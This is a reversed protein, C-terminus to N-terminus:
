SERIKNFAKGLCNIIDSAIISEYCSEGAAIDGALGHLFVGLVATNEPSMGQALLSLLIGTLVDGSGATAMGPNGTSNFFVKGDSTTISTFAGKLITICSHERSFELQRTLRAFGNGTKGALREFEKPHPTLITGAPLLTLWEKNLSLINLADADIILPKKCENLLKHFTKQTENATGLGPGVGVASFLDTNGIDSIYESSPDQKVMTEPVVCHIASTGCSPVHCTLLGIGSRLAAGAGLLTAGLKGSSGSVLLGHGFHGKHDFKGRKKLMPLVDSKGVLTFPSPIDRIADSHLEIPLIFWEGTYQSNEGFMFSLKPFQFSLTYDARIINEFCNNSNDEGFLGSPIDISIKICEISNILRIIEAPLGEAPRKLGSGFIADIIIDGSSIVPFHDPTDICNLRVDTEAQLCLRNIDWDASIKDTFQVNCVEVDYRNASLMRALALGDGGNNGPGTFIFIRHSREFRSIYWNLLKGAAREMLDVSAIPEYRITYDDIERIQECTFIKMSFNNMIRLNVSKM